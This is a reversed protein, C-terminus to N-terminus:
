RAPCASIEFSTAKWEFPSSYGSTLTKEDCATSSCDCTGITEDYQEYTQCESLLHAVVKVGCGCVKFKSTGAHTHCMLNDGLAASEAFVGGDVFVKDNITFRSAGEARHRSADAAVALFAVTLLKAFSLRAM